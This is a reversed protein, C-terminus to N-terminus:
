SFSYFEKEFGAKCFNKIEVHLSLHTQYENKGTKEKIAYLCCAIVCIDWILLLCHQGSYLFFLHSLASCAWIKISSSWWSIARCSLWMGARIVPFVERHQLCCLFFCVFLFYCRRKIQFHVVYVSKLGCLSSILTLLCWALLKCM